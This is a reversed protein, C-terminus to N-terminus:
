DDVKMGKQCVKEEMEYWRLEIMETMRKAQGMLEFKPKEVMFKDGNEPRDVRNQNM